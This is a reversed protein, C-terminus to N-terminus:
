QLFPKLLFLLLFLRYSIFLLFHLPFVLFTIGAGDVEVASITHVKDLSDTIKNFLLINVLLQNIDPTTAVIGGHM